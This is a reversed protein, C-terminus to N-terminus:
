INCDVDRIVFVRNCNGLKPSLFMFGTEISLPFRFQMTVDLRNKWHVPKKIILPIFIKIQFCTETSSDILFLADGMSKNLDFPFRFAKIVLAPNIM